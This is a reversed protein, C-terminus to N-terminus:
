WRARLLEARLKAMIQDAGDHETQHLYAALTSLLTNGEQPVFIWGKIRRGDDLLNNSVVIAHSYIRGQFGYRRGLEFVRNSDFKDTTSLYPAQELVSDVPDDPEDRM